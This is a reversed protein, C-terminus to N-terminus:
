VARRLSLGLERANVIRLSLPKGAFHERHAALLAERFKAAFYTKITGNIIVTIPFIAPMMGPM